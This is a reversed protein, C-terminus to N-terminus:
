FSMTDFCQLLGGLTFFTVSYVGFGAIDLIGIYQQSSHNINPNIQGNGNVARILYEFLHSYMTKMMSDRAREALFKDLPVRFINNIWM